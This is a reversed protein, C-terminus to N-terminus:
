KSTTPFVPVSCPTFLKFGKRIDYAFTYVM